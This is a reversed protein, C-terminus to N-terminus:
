KAESHFAEAYAKIASEHERVLDQFSKFTLYMSERERRLAAATAALDLADHYGFEYVIKGTTEDATRTVFQTLGYVIRPSFRHNYSSRFDRTAEQFNRSNIADRAEKFEKYSKWPKGYRDATHSYIETDLPLDDVWDAGRKLANAQHCLHASAFGFRAKIIYPLNIVGTALVDIFERCADSRQEINLPGITQAWAELYRVKVTFDNITNALERAFEELMMSYALWEPRTPSPLETWGYPMFEGGTDPMDELICRFARYLEVSM